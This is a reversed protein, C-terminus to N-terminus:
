RIAATRYVPYSKGAYDIAGTQAMGFREAVRVGHESIFIGGIEIINIGRQQLSQLYLPIDNLLCRSFQRRNTDETDVMVTTWYLYVDKSNTYDVIYEALEKEDLVGHLVSEYADKELPLFAYHGKLVGNAELVRIVEENRSFVKRVVEEPVHWQEPYLRYELQLVERIDSNLGTRVIM